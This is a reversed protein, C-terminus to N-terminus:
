TIIITNYASQRLLIGLCRQRDSCNFSKELLVSFSSIPGVANTHHANGPGAVERGGSSCSSELDNREPASSYWQPWNPMALSQYSTDEM